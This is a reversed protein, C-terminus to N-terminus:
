SGPCRPPCRRRPTYTSPLVLCPSGRRSSMVRAPMTSSFFPSSNEVPTPAATCPEGALATAQSALVSPSSPMGKLAPSTIRDPECDASTGPPRHPRVPTCRRRAPCSGPSTKPFSHPMLSTLGLRERSSMTRRHSRRRPRGSGRKRLGWASRRIGPSSCRRRSRPAFRAAGGSSRGPAGASRSSPRASRLALITCIHPDAHRGDAKVSRM